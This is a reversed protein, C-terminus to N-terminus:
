RSSMAKDPHRFCTTDAIETRGACKSFLRQQGLWIQRCKLAYRHARYGIHQICHFGALHISPEHRNLVGNFAGDVERLIRQYEVM